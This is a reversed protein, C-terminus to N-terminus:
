LLRQNDNLVVLCNLLLSSVTSRGSSPTSPAEEGDKGMRGPFVRLGATQPASRSLESELGTPGLAGGWVEQKRLGRSRLRPRHVGSPSSGM